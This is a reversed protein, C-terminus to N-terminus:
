VSLFRLVESQVVAPELWLRVAQIHKVRWGQNSHKFCPKKCRKHCYEALYEHKEQERVIDRHYRAGDIEIAWLIDNGFDLWYKGADVEREFREVKLAKGLSLVFRLPQKTEPNKIFPITIMKAGMIKMFQVEAASPFLLRVYRFFVARTRYYHREFAQKSIEITM